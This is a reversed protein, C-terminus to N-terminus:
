SMKKSKIRLKHNEQRQRGIVLRYWWVLKKKM